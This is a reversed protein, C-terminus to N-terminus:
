ERLISVLADIVKDMLDVPNERGQPSNQCLLIDAKVFKGM